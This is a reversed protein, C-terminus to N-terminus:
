KRDLKLDYSERLFLICFLTTRRIRTKMASRTIALKNTAQVV